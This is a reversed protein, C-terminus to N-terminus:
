LDSRSSSHESSYSSDDIQPILSSYYYYEGVAYVLVAAVVAVVTNRITSLSSILEQQEKGAASNQKENQEDKSKGNANSVGAGASASSASGATASPSAGATAAAAVAQTAAQTATQNAAQNTVQTAPTAPDCSVNPTSPAGATTGALVDTAWCFVDRARCMADLQVRVRAVVGADEAPECCQYRERLVSIMNSISNETSWLSNKKGVAAAEVEAARKEWKQEVTAIRDQKNKMQYLERHAAVFADKAAAKAEVLHEEAAYYRPAATEITKLLDDSGSALGGGGGSSSRGYKGALKKALVVFGKDVQWLSTKLNKYKEFTKDVDGIKQPNENQYFAQLASTITASATEFQQVHGGIWMAPDPKSVAASGQPLLLLKSESYVTIKSVHQGVLKITYASAASDFGDVKGRAGNLHYGGNADAADANLGTLEVDLGVALGGGSVPATGAGTSSGDARFYNGGAANALALLMEKCAAVYEIAQATQVTKGDHMVQNRQRLLAFLTERLARQVPSASTTRQQWVIANLLAGLTMPHQVDIGQLRCVLKLMLELQIGTEIFLATAERSTFSPSAAGAVLADGIRNFEDEFQDEM